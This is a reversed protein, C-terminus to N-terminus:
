DEAFESLFKVAFRVTLGDDGNLDEAFRLGRESEHENM